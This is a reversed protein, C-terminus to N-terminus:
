FVDNYNIRRHPQMYGPTAVGTSQGCRHIKVLHQLMTVNALECLVNGSSSSSSWVSVHQPYQLKITFQQIRKFFKRKNMLRYYFNKMIAPHVTCIHSFFVPSFITGWVAADVCLEWYNKLIKMTVGHMNDLWEIIIGVLACIYFKYM